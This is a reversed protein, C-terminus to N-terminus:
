FSVCLFIDTTNPYLLPNKKINEKELSQTTKKWNFSIQFVEGWVYSSKNSQIQPM